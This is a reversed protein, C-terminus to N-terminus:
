KSGLTGTAPNGPNIDYKNDGGSLLTAGAAVNFAKTNGFMRNGTASVRAGAVAANIGINNNTFVNDSAYVTATSTAANIAYGYVASFVSGSVSVYSNAGVEIGTNTLNNFSTNTVSAVINGSTTQMRIGVNMRSFSSNRVSLIGFASKNVNIGANSPAVGSIFVNDLELEGGSIFRIGDFGTEVGGNQTASLRLNRLIVKDSAGANVQMGTFGFNINITGACDITISKTITVSAFIGSDLCKIEGGASVNVLARTFDRCPATFTCAASDVGGSSVYTTNFQAHASTSPLSAAVLLALLGLFLSTRNMTIIGLAHLFAM